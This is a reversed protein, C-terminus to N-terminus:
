TSKGKARRGLWSWTLKATVVSLIFSVPVIVLLGVLGLGYDDSLAERNPAGVKEMHLEIYWTSILHEFCIFSLVLAALCILLRLIM